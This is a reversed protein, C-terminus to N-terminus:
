SQAGAPVAGTSALAALAASSGIFERRSHKMSFAGSAHYAPRAAQARPGPAHRRRGSGRARGPPASRTTIRSPRARSPPIPPSRPLCGYSAATTLRRDSYTSRDAKAGAASRRSLSREPPKSSAHVFSAGFSTLQGPRVDHQCNTLKGLRLERRSDTLEGPRLERRYNTLEGPRLEGFALSTQHPLP